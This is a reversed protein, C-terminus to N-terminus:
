RAALLAGELHRRTEEDLCVLATERIGRTLLVRYANRVLRLMEPGARKVPADYSESPQAIWEGTRWVLDPGWIVGVRDFEFGQASYICGVQGRGEDTEAWLTYPDNDPRYRKKEDRKRNWPMAWPGIQVDRELSGDSRARSWPWCFGAVIRTREGSPAAENVTRELSQPTDEIRFHYRERWPGSPESRFGLLGDVWEIYERCGGCRFQGALDYERFRIRLASAQERVLASSGIEDPRVFQNDDLFFVSVKAAEMLEQVQPRDARRTRPTYRTDSTKRIRHAEDIVLLDLCDKGQDRLNLNWLFLRDAGRFKSRLATTFAKGGTSHASRLGLRLADALLQVAIVSKGTGPGGRVLIASRGRGRALRRLEALVAGHAVRQTDLLHWREDHLLVNELTQLVGKSPAFTGGTIRGMVALGDGGGAVDAVHRALDEERGKTFLPSRELLESFRSDELTSAEARELNHCYAAPAATVEGAVFASHYDTLWDAYDLAQQSPHAHEVGDVEVNQAFADELAASSWQKLELVLARSRKSADTGCLLVDIRRGSLPLHYETAVGIRRGSSADAVVSAGGLGGTAVAVGVERRSIGRLADALAALSNEWSRVEAPSPLGGHLSVFRGTMEGAISGSEAARVFHQLPGQWLDV